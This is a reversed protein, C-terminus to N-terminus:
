LIFINRDWYFKDQSKRSGQQLLTDRKKKRKTTGIINM